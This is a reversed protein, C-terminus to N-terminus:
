LKVQLFSALGFIFFFLLIFIIAGMIAANKNGEKFNRFIIVGFYVAEFIFILGFIVGQRLKIYRAIPIAIALAILIFNVIKDSKYKKKSLM